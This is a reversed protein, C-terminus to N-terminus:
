REGPLGELFERLTLNKAMSIQHFTEKDRPVSPPEEEWEIEGLLSEVEPSTLIQAALDPSNQADAMRPFMLDLTQKAEPDKEVLDQLKMELLDRMESRPPKKGGPTAVALLVRSMSTTPSTPMWLKHPASPKPMANM